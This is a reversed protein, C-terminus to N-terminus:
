RELLTQSKVAFGVGAERMEESKRGDWLFTYGAGAAKIEEEEASRTESLAAIETRCRSLERGVFATRSQLRVLCQGDANACEM